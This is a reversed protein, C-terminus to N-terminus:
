HCYLKYTMTPKQFYPPYKLSVSFNRLEGQNFNKAIIFDKIITSPKTDKKSNSLFSFGANPTFIKSGSVTSATLADNVLRVEIKCKGISFHGINRIKGSLILSETLLVRNQTMDELRAQKTYKDLIFMSFIALTSMVLFNSFLMSLLIKRNTQRLAVISILIFLVLLIVLTLWHLITFYAM